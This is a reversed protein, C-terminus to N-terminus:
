LRGHGIVFEKKLLIDYVQTSDKNIWKGMISDAEEKFNNFRLSASINRKVDREFLTLLTDTLTGNLIISTDYEDYVYYARSLGDGYHKAVLTIPQKGLLGSYCTQSNVMWPTLFIILFLFFRM